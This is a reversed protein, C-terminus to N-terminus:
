CFRCEMALLRTERGTLLPLVAPMDGEALEPFIQRIEAWAAPSMGSRLQPGPLLSEAPLGNAIVVAHGDCMFHCYTVEGCQRDIWIRDGALSGVPALMQEAGYLLEVEPWDVMVRHQPSLRLECRPLDRGFCHAPIVVPHLDQATASAFHDFVITRRGTWTVRRVRGDIDLVEDGPRLTEVARDGRPTLIMTGAVFCPVFNPLETGVAPDIDFTLNVGAGTPLGEPLLFFIQGDVSFISIDRADITVTNGFVDLGLLSVTGSGIYSIEGSTSGSFTAGDGQQLTGDDDTVTGTQGPGIDNLVNLNTTGGLGLSALDGGYAYVTVDSTGM